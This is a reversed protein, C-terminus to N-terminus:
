MSINNKDAKSEEGIANILSHDKVSTIMIPNDKRQIPSPAEEEGLTLEEPISEISHQPKM